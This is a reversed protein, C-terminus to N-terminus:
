VLPQQQDPAQTALAKRDIKGSATRPFSDYIQISRPVAYAPLQDAAFRLLAGADAAYEPKLIAAAEIRHSGENDATAFVAVEEVATHTLLISEVEDLEVRYGRSKIQRDKRGLFRLNGDPLRQVLDGTRYFVREFGGDDPTRYLARNTLDPRAWYGRMMTPARILLEGVEGDEVAKDEEDLILGDANEWVRGIPVQEDAYANPLPPVHFYTCQNVEAPGYVNSFQAHPWQRMLAHLHKPPFPEGGFLVWRLASMDHQDLQGRLLMQILALPVSYWITLREEAVLQALSAPLLKYEEPIIVTTASRLPGSFYDFTSMDFHLPSHNSLRDQAQVDYIKAALMAYSLGSHHTHMMGKPDGTSGSTYMVYALDDQMTGAAPRTQPFTAVDNWTLVTLPLDGQERLGICCHLQSGLALQALSSRKSEHTILVRIGCNRLMFLVRALPVGPDLPVYAAGAQMIGYIAVACELSKHMLIGVRDGRRVGQDVLAQALANARQVLEAYSIASDLFRFAEKDPHREASNEIAHPILYIL